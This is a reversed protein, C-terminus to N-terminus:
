NAVAHEAVKVPNSEKLDKFKVWEASGDKFQTLLSWGRPTFKLSKRGNKGVAFGESIPTASADKKHDTIEQLLPFQRGEDDVQMCMNEAIVNAQHKERTGDVFEVECECTDFIPAASTCGIPKKKQTRSRL